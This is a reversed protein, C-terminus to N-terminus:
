GTATPTPTTTAKPDPDAGSMVLDTGTLSMARVIDAPTMVDFLREADDRNFNSDGKRISLILMECVGGFSNILVDAEPTGLKIRPKSAQAIAEALMFKQTAVPVDPTCHKLAAAVPDPLQTELWAQLRGLDGITLPHLQYTQGGITLPRPAATLTAFDNSIM